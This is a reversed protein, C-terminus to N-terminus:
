SVAERPGSWGGSRASASIVPVEDWFAGCLFRRCGVSCSGRTAVLLLWLGASALGRTSRDARASCV